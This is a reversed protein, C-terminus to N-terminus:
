KRNILRGAIIAIAGELENDKCDYGAARIEKALFSRKEASVNAFGCTAAASFSPTKALDGFKERLDVLKMERLEKLM